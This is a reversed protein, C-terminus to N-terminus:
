GAADGRASNRVVGRDQAPALFALSQESISCVRGATSVIKGVVDPAGYPGRLFVLLYLARCVMRLAACEWALALETRLSLQVFHRSQGFYFEQLSIVQLRVQEIWALVLRKRDQLFQQQVEQTTASAVYELDERAFFRGVLEPPLLNLQLTRLAYRAGLLADASGEPRVPRARLALFIAILLGAAIFSYLILATM